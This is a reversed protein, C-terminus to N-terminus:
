CSDIDEFFRLEILQMVLLTKKLRQNEFGSELAKRNAKDRM